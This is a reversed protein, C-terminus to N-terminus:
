GGARTRGDASPRNDVTYRNYTRNLDDVAKEENAHGTAGPDSAGNM